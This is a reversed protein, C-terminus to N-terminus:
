EERPRLLLLKVFVAISEAKRAISHRLWTRESRSLSAASLFCASSWDSRCSRARRAEARRQLCCRVLTRAAVVMWIHRCRRRTSWLIAMRVALRAWMLVSHWPADVCATIRLAIRPEGGGIWCVAGGGVVWDVVLGGALGLIVCWGKRSRPRVRGGLLLLCRLWRGQRCGCRFYLPSDLVNEGGVVWM